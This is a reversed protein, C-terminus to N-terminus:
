RRRRAVILVGALLGALALGSWPALASVDTKLGSLTVANPSALAGGPTVVDHLGIGTDDGSPYRTISNGDQDSGWDEVPGVSTATASFGAYETPPDDAGDGNYRLQVYEDAGPDYLVVNDGGNNLVGGSYGADFALSNPNTMTPLSGGSQVATVVVAYAGPQLVTAPPFTFWLGVGDDWLQWGSIDVAAGSLNYLEVFEDETEATGNGDTDFNDTTSNPDALVENICVGSDLVATTPAAQATSVMGVLLAFLVVLSLLRKM